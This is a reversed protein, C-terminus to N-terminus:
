KKEELIKESIYQEAYNQFEEFAGYFTRRSGLPHIQYEIGGRLHKTNQFYGFYRDGTPSGLSGSGDTYVRWAWGKPLSKATVVVFDNLAM